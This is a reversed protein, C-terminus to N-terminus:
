LAAVLVIELLDIVQEFDRAPRLAGCGQETQL